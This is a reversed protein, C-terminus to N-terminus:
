IQMVLNEYSEKMINFHERWSGLRVSHASEFTQILTFSFLFKVPIFFVLIDAIVNQSNPIDIRPM